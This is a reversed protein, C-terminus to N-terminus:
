VRCSPLVFVSHTTFFLFFPKFNYPFGCSVKVVIANEIFSIRFVCGYIAVIFGQNQACRNSQFNIVSSTIILTLGTHNTHTWNLLHSTFISSPFCCKAGSPIFFLTRSCFSSYSAPVFTDDPFVLCLNMVDVTCIHNCALKKDWLFQGVCTVHSSRL